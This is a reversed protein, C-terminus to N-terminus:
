ARGVRRRRRRIHAATMWTAGILLTFGVLVAFNPPASAVDVPVDLRSDGVTFRLHVRGATDPEWNFQYVGPATRVAAIASVCALAAAPDSASGLDAGVAPTPDIDDPDSVFVPVPALCAFADDAPRGARRVNLILSAAQGKRFGAPIQVRLEYAGPAADAQVLAAMSAALM